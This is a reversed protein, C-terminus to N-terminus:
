LNTIAPLAVTMVLESFGKPNEDFFVMISKKNLHSRLSQLSIVQGKQKLISQVKSPYKEILTKELLEAFPKIKDLCAEHVVYSLDNPWLVAAKHKECIGCLTEHNDGHHNSSYVIGKPGFGYASKDSSIM